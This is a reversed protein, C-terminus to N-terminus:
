QLLTRENPYQFGLVERAREELLDPDLSDSRLRVVKDQLAAKKDHLVHVDASLSSIENDLTMLRFLSRDGALANSSFYLGLILGIIAVLNRRVTYRQAILRKM